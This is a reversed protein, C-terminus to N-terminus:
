IEKSRITPKTGEISIMGGSEYMKQCVFDICDGKSLANATDQWYWQLLVDDFEFGADRMQEALVCANFYQHVVLSLHSHFSSETVTGFLPTGPTPVFVLADASVRYHLHPLENNIVGVITPSTKNDTVDLDSLFKVNEFALLIGGIEDSYKLLFSRLSEEVNGLVNGLASPFLSVTLELSHSAFAKNLSVSSTDDDAIETSEKKHRKKERKDEEKKKKKQEKKITKRERRQEETEDSDRKGM